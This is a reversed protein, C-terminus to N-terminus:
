QDIRRMKSARDYLVISVTTALNMCYQTPVQVVKDCKNIIHDELSGNEPGFVYVAREPHTFDFLPEAANPLYEVAVMEAGYPKSLHGMQYVPMHKWSRPTDAAAKIWGSLKRFPPPKIMVSNVGFNTASRLISGINQSDKPEYLAVISYGRQKEM